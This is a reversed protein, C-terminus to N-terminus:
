FNNLDDNKYEYKKITDNLKIKQREAKKEFIAPKACFIQSLIVTKLVRFDYRGGVQKHKLRCFTFIKIGWKENGRM